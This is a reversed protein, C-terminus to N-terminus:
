RHRAEQTTGEAENANAGELAELRDEHSNIRETVDVRWQVLDSPLAAACGCLLCACAVSLLRVPM